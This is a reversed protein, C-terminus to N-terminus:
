DVNDFFVWSILTKDKSKFDCCDVQLDYAVLAMPM